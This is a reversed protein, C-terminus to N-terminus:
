VVSPRQGADAAPRWPLSTTTWVARAIQEHGADTPHVGDGTFSFTPEDERRAQLAAHVPGHVDIVQWGNSRQEMLWQGYVALPLNLVDLTLLLLPAFIFAQLFRRGSRRVAIDRFDTEREEDSMEPVDTVNLAGSSIGEAIIQPERGTHVMARALFRKPAM